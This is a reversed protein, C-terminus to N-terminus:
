DIRYALSLYAARGPQPFASYSTGLDWVGYSFYREDFVNRVELAASWRRAFAHELKVDVLTYDPQHRFVNAQDNDFRQRGVYRADVNLRSRPAFTWSVGATALAEPVLPVRNGGVAVGGYEGSRFRADLLALAFRLELARLARWATELEVGSRRTPALNVNAFVLPSFYIENDLDLRYASLRARLGRREYEVGLEGGTATQPLLLQPACPPFFCANEDFTAVRFSKGYKAYTSLGGGFAHRLAAEYAELSHTRRRDDVPFVQEALREETRQQRAGLVIRTATALWVSAQAYLARSDQDGARRSFPTGAAEPASASLTDYDWRELDAGLVLEHSRGFADFGLKARPTFSWVDARTDTFFGGFAAFFASAERRRLALDAALEHQGLMRMAGLGAHAGSRESWDDPTLTQRPDAAIQAETLAGPLRLRQEHAGLKLWARGETLRADLRGAVNAQRYRNNRRYGETDETSFALAGGFREGQREIGARLETTGFGGARGVAHGRTSGPPAPRTVINITGGTAGGGYLVAGAGRVIEIREISELPIANLQAPVLENESLRVGDLLVLTNQDGTAGFGRLDIQQNPTGANNRIHLLGFLALLEPLDTAASRRLADATIITVGVPLERKLDSFRTATIVVADDQAFGSGAFLTVFACVAFRM